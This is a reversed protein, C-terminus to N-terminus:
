RRRNIFTKKIRRRDRIYSFLSVISVVFLVIALGLFFLNGMKDECSSTTSTTTKCFACRSYYVVPTLFIRNGTSHFTVIIESNLIM